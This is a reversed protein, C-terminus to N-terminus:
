GDISLSTEFSKDINSNKLIYYASIIKFTSAPIFKTNENLKYIEKGSKNLISIGIQDEKVGYKKLLSTISTTALTTYTLLTLLLLKTM